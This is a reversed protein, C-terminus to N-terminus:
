SRVRHRRSPRVYFHTPLPVATAEKVIREYRQRSVASLNTPSLRRPSPLVAALSAAQSLSLRSVPCGFYHKSAAQIGYVGEGWEIVNLYIELTRRKGWVLGVVPAMLAEIFKRIYSRGPWLFVNKVTQMTITSAGRPRKRGDSDDIADGVASLDVGWHELFRADEAAVVSQQVHLPIEELSVWEWETSVNREEVQYELARIAILPTVPPNILKLLIVYALWAGAAWALTRTATRLRKRWAIGQKSEVNM